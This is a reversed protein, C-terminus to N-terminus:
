SRNAVALFGGEDLELALKQALMHDADPIWIRDDPHACFRVGDDRLVNQVHGRHICYRRGQSGVVHFSNSDLLEALQSPDLM